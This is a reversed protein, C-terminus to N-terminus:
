EPWYDPYRSLWTIIHLYFVLRVECNTKDTKRFNKLIEKNTLIFEHKAFFQYYNDLDVSNLSAYELLNMYRDSPIIRLDTGFVVTGNLTMSSPGETWIEKALKSNIVDAYLSKVEGALKIFAKRKYGKKIAKKLLNDLIEPNRSFDREQESGYFAEDLESLMQVWEKNEQSLCFPEVAYLKFVHVFVLLLISLFVKM